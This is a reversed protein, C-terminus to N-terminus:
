GGHAIEPRGDYQGVAAECAEIPNFPTPEFTVRDPPEVGDCQDANFVNYYRLVPVKKEEGTARDKTEYEKWFVVMTSKEGKRVNGSREKAQQFTMWYASGYGRAYATFALLFTNIGRYGKGSALNKPHGATGRGMIPSRWPVCGKDLMECIQKTICEYLDFQSM